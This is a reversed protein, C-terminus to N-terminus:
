PVTQYRYLRLNKTIKYVNLILFKRYGFLFNKINFATVLFLKYINIVVGM